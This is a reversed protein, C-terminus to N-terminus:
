VNMKAEQYHISSLNDTKVHTQLLRENQTIVKEEFISRRKPYIALMMLIDRTKLLNLEAM